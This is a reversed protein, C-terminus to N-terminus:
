FLDQQCTIPLCSDELMRASYQHCLKWFNQFLSPYHEYNNCFIVWQNVNLLLYADISFLLRIISAFPKDRQFLQQVGRYLRFIEYSITTFSQFVFARYVLKKRLSVIRFPGVLPEWDYPLILLKTYFGQSNQGSKSQQLHCCPRLQRVTHEKRFWSSSSYSLYSSYIQSFEQKMRRDLQSVNGFVLYTM